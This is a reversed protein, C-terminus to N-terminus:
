LYVSPKQGLRQFKWMKQKIPLWGKSNGHKKKCVRHFKWLNEKFNLGQFNRRKKNFKLFPSISIGTDEM